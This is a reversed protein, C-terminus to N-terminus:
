SAQEEEAPSSTWPLEGFGYGSTEDDSFEAYGVTGDITQAMLRKVYVNNTRLAAYMSPVVLLSASSLAKLHLIQRGAMQWVFRRRHHHKFAYSAKLLEWPRLEPAVLDDQEELLETPLRPESAQRRAPLHPRIAQWKEYVLAVKEAYDQVGAPGSMLCSWEALCADVNAKLGDRLELFWTCRPRSIRDLSGFKTEFNDWHGSIAKDTTYAGSSQLFQHLDRLSDNIVRNAHGMLFDM